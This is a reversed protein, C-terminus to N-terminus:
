KKKNSGYKKRRCVELAHGKINCFSCKEKKQSLRTIFTSRDGCFYCRRITPSQKEKAMVRFIERHYQKAMRTTDPNASQIRVGVDVLRKFDINTGFLFSPRINRDPDKFGFILKERLPRDLFDELMCFERIKQIRLAFDKISEGMKQEASWFKYRESIFFPNPWFHNSMLNQLIKISATTPDEGNLLAKAM